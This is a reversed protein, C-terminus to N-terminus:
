AHFGRRILELCMRGNHYPCKWPEVIPKKSVPVGEHSVDWFWEAGDRKDIMFAKVYEWISLVADNYGANCFGVMAEAQVWWVRTHDVHGNESENALSRGDFAVEYVQKTIDSTIAKMKATLTADGIIECGRDVLWAAEIDHGYSHLDAISEMKENFFVELRHKDANYVKNSFIDLIEVIRDLVKAEKTVRYLECYAEFVHLLTNMTRHAVVSNESLKENEVPVFIRNFAELYGGVDKCRSEITDFLSLATDRANIDGSADYYSSLAYVCFAICYTHKMSDAATGDHNVSWFVGGNEHDVCREVIFDYAHRAHTLLEEDLLTLYANAFFWLIRSTLISGKEAQKHLELDYNVYGYYGGFEVDRLGQWFPIIKHELHDKVENVLM